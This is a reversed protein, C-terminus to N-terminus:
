VGQLKALSYLTSVDYLNLDKIGWTVICVKTSSQQAETLQKM